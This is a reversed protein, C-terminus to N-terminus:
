ILYLTKKDYIIGFFKHQEVVPIEQDKLKIVPDNHLKRM